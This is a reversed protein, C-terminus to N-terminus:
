NKIISNSKKNVYNAFEKGNPYSIKGNKEFIIKSQNGFTIAARPAMIIPESIRLEVHDSLMLNSYFRQTKTWHTNSPITFTNGLFSDETVFQILNSERLNKHAKLIETPQLYNRAHQWNQSMLSYQCANSQHYQNNHNLGLSHGLEHATGVADGIHWGRTEKWTTQHEKALEYRHYFYKLYRNPVNVSSTRDLKTLSPLQSAEIGNLNYGAGKSQYLRDFNDGDMTLYVNIGKQVSPDHAIKQDLYALYWNESPSIGAYNKKELNAGSNKYNWAYSDKITIYDFVFRIKSDEYFDSGTYCGTLNSPAYFKSWSLNIREFYDKLLSKEEADNLSFNSKPRKEDELIIVNVRVTIPNLDKTIKFQEITGSTASQSITPSPSTPNTSNPHTIGITPYACATFIFVLLLLLHKKM